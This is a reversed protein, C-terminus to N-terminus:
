AMAAGAAAAAAEAEDLVAKVHELSPTSERLASAIAGADLAEWQEESDVNWFGMMQNCGFSFGPLVSPAQESCRLFIFCRSGCFVVNWASSHTGADLRGAAQLVVHLAQGAAKACPASASASGADSSTPPEAQLCIAYSGFFDLM